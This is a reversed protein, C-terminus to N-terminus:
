PGSKWEPPMFLPRREGQSVSTARDTLIRFRATDAIGQSRGDM